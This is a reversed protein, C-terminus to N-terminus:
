HFHKVTTELTILTTTFTIIVRHKNTQIILNVSLQPESLRPDVTVQKSDLIYYKKSLNCTHISKLKRKDPGFPGVNVHFRRVFINYLNLITAVIHLIAYM